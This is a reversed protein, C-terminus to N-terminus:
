INNKLTRISVFEVEDAEVTRHHLSNKCNLDVDDPKNQKKDKKLPFVDSGSQCLLRCQAMLTHLAADGNM